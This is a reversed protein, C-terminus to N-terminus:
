VSGAPMSKAILDLLKQSPMMRLRVDSMPTFEVTSSGIIPAPGMEILGRALRDAIARDQRLARVLSIASTLADAEVNLFLRGVKQM